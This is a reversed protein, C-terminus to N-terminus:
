ASSQMRSIDTHSSNLRTSKRDIQDLNEKYLRKNEVAVIIINTLTQIFSLHKIIPSVEIKEGDFDGLLLYALPESKHFVPVIVDFPKLKANKDNSLVKIEKISLLDREVNIGKCDNSGLCLEQKWAKNNFSFLLIKGIKLEDLLVTKYLDLLANKSINNNIGKTVELLTDLKLKGLQLRKKINKSQTNM